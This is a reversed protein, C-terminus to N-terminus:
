APAPAAACAHLQDLACRLVRSVHGQSAGVRSAIDAQTLDEDYRLRLIERVEADLNRILHEITARLEARELDPDICPILEGASAGDGDVDDRAPADISSLVRLTQARVAESMSEECCGLRRALEAVTPPRGLEAQLARRVPEASLALEQLRRPPRIGWTVDRFHRRLEGLITPTAYASLDVGREPDWRDVAKVLGLLAVQTLDEAPETGRRYRLALARALPVYMAILDERARPDGARMRRALWAPRHRHRRSRESWREVSM